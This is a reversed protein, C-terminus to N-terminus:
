RSTLSSLLELLAARDFPKQLYGDAGLSFALEQQALLTCVVVPAEATDPHARLRGMIEWGDVDPMMIDLLIVHPQVQTATEVVREAQVVSTLLYGSDALYREYLRVADPNDDILLVRVDHRAPLVLHASLGLGESVTLEGGAAAALQQAVQLNTHDGASLLGGGNGSVVLSLAVQGPGAEGARLTVHGQTAHQVAVTLLNLLIQRLTVASLCVPPLANGGLVCVDVERQSAMPRVLKIVQALIDALYCSGQVATTAFQALDPPPEGHADQAEGSPGSPEAAGDIVLGAQEALRYALTEVAQQEWRRLQRISIALQDAMEPQALQQVYRYTLIDYIRWAASACPTDSQPKLSAIAGIVLDRLHSAPNSVSGRVLLGALPSAHLVMPEYLHRLAHRVMSRLETLPISDQSQGM